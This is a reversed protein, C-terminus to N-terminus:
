QINYSRIDTNSSCHGIESFIIWQLIVYIQHLMFCFIPSSCSSNSRILHVWKRVLGTVFIHHLSLPLSLSYTYHVTSLYFWIIIRFLDFSFVDFQFSVAAAFLIFLFSHILVSLRLWFLFEMSDFSFYCACMVCVAVVVAIIFPITTVFVRIHTHTHTQCM